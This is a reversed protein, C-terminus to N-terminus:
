DPQYLDVMFRRVYRMLIGKVGPLYGVLKGQDDVVGQCVKIVGFENCMQERTYKMIM